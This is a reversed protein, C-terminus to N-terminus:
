VLVRSHHVRGKSKSLMRDLIILLTYHLLLLPAVTPRLQCALVARAIRATHLGNESRRAAAFVMWGSSLSSRRHRHRYGGQVIAKRVVARLAIHAIGVAAVV